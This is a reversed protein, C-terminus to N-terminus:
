VRGAAAQGRGGESRVHVLELGRLDHDLLAADGVRGGQAKRCEGDDGKDGGYVIRTLGM